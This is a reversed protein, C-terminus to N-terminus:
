STTMNSFHEHENNLIYKKEYDLLNGRKVPNMLNKIWWIEEKLYPDDHKISGQFSTITPYLFGGKACYSECGRPM